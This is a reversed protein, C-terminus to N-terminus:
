LVEEWSRNLVYEPVILNWRAQLKGPERKRRDLYMPCSPAHKQLAELHQDEVMLQERYLELFFGVRAVTVAKRMKLVYEIVADLDFFGVSELSRFTEEWGGGYRLNDLVDVLTRELTTVRITLGAHSEEAIGGGWDKLVRLVAPVLVPVYEAGRFRFPKNRRVTLYTFRRSISHAKGHFQLATHYAIAADPSLRSSLLYANVQFNDPSVGRPVVAYLGRRIHLLNGARVHQKLV